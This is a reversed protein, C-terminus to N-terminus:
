RQAEHNQGGPYTFPKPPAILYQHLKEAIAPNERSEKLWGKVDPPLGPFQVTNDGDMWMKFAKDPQLSEKELYTFFSLDTPANLPLGQRLSFGAGQPMSAFYDTVKDPVSTYRDVATETVVTQTTTVSVSRQFTTEPHLLTINGASYLYLGKPQNLDIEDNGRILTSGDVVLTGAGGVGHGFAADGTVHLVAGEPINVYHNTDVSSIRTHGQIRGDGPLATVDVPPQNGLLQNVDPTQPNVFNASPHSKGAVEVTIQGVASAEGTVSMKTDGGAPDPSGLIAKPDGSNTHLNGPGPVPNLTSEVGNIFAHQTIDVSRQNTLAFFSDASLTLQVRLKKEVVGSRGLSHLIVDDGSREVRVQYSAGNSLKVLPGLGSSPYHDLSELQAMTDYVGAEAAYLAKNKEHVRGVVFLNQGTVQLGCLVFMLLVVSILLVAILAM